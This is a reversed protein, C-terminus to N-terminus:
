LAEEGAGLTLDGARAQHLRGADDRICLAGDATVDIALGSIGGVEVRRYLTSLRSKWAAVLAPSEIQRYWHDLRGLLMGVLQARDLRRGLVHELSIASRSLASGSFDLRVNVGIGLVAGWLRDGEWVAEPLIGSVKLGNVLVDNPWKIGADACGCDRVLDDVGLAAVMTLRPLSARAPKLILSLALATGPPTRWVRGMRGRGRTQEDAIVVAGAPAGSALWAKALDNTSDVCAYYRFPRTLRQALLSHSLTM